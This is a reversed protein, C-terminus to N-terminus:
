EPQGTRDYAAKKQPDSLTAYAENVKKFETEKAKDGQHRDPHLDMAKKRYAKKIEEASADRQVGLLDYFEFAM